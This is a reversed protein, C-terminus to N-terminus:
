TSIPLFLQLQEDMSTRMRRFQPYKATACVVVLYVRM